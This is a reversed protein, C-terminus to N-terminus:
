MVPDDIYCMSPSVGIDRGTCYVDNLFESFFELPVYVIGDKEAVPADLKIDRSLDIATLYSIFAVRDSGVTLEAKQIYVDDVTIKGDGDVSYKYGLAESIDKLPVMLTSSYYYPTGGTKLKKENVTINYDRLLKGDSGFNYEKGDITTKGTRMVGDKSFYYISSSIRRWGLLMKGERSYFYTKGNVNQWGHLTTASESATVEPMNEAHSVVPTMMSAALVAAAAFIMIKKM